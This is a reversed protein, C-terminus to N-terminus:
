VFVCVVVCVSIVKDRTTIIRLGTCKNDLTFKDDQGAPPTVKWQVTDYADPYRAMSPKRGGGSEVAPSARVMPHSSIDVVGPLACKSTASSDLRPNSIAVGSAVGAFAAALSAGFAAGMQSSLQSIAASGDMAEGVCFFVAALICFTLKINSVFGAHRRRSGRKVRRSMSRKRSAAFVALVPLHHSTVVLTSGAYCMASHGFWVLVNWMPSACRCLLIIALCCRALVDVPTIYVWSQFPLRWRDCIVMIVVLCVLFEWM